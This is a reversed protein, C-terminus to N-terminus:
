KDTGDYNISEKVELLIMWIFDLVGDVEIKPPDEVSFEYDHQWFIVKCDSEDETLTHLELCSHNGFGDPCIPLFHPWIPNGVENKEFKYNEYLDLAKITKNKSDYHIGYIIDSILNFGNYVKLFEKFRTPLTHDLQKELAILKTATTGPYLTVVSENYKELELIIQNLEIM